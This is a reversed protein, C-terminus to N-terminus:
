EVGIVKHLQLSLRWEPNQEVFRVCRQIAEREAPTGDEDALPQV